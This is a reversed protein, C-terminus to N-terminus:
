ILPVILAHDNRFNGSRRAVANVHAKVLVALRQDHDVRGANALFLPDRGVVDLKVTKVPRLSGIRRASTTIISISPVSGTLSGSLFSAWYIASCNM